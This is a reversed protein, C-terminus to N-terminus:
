ELQTDIYTAVKLSFEVEHPGGIETLLLEVSRAESCSRVVLRYYVNSSAHATCSVQNTRLLPGISQLADHLANHTADPKIEHQNGGDEAGGVVGRSRCRVSSFASLHM